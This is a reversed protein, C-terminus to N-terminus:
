FSGFLSWQLVMHQTASITLFTWSTHQTKTYRVYRMELFVVREDRTYFAGCQMCKWITRRVVYLLACRLCVRVVFPSHHGANHQIGYWQEYVCVCVYVSLVDQQSRKWELFGLTIHCREPLCAPLCSADFSFLLVFFSCLLYIFFFVIKFAHSTTTM